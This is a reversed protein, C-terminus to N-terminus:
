YHKQKKNKVVQTHSNTNLLLFVVIDPKIRNLNIFLEEENKYEISKM